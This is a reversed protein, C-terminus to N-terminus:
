FTFVQAAPMEMFAVKGNKIDDSVKPAMSANSPGYKTGNWSLKVYGKGKSYAYINSYKKTVEKTGPAGIYIPYDVVTFASTQKFANNLVLMTCGGSGCFSPGILGIIYENKGDDNLDVSVYMFKRGDADEKPYKAALFKQIKATQEPTETQAIVSQFSLALLVVIVFHFTIKKM